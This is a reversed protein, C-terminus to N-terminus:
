RSVEKRTLGFSEWVLQDLQREFETTDNDPLLNFITKALAIMKQGLETKPSPLPFKQVYQTMFRRRGAYLKNNFSKDYFQEIFTSNGVALILWLLEINKGSADNLWYCDGNVIAGDLDIWFEPKESIDRFVIKPKQWADPDQPVWLEYWNRGAEIVYKRGELISRHKELYAKSAPYAELDVTRRNGNFCVHPYVIERKKTAKSAKFRRALHHTILPKLLEPKENEPFTDWDSRIFVKDATSKVGVAIKGVDGFFCYTNQKVQELWNDTKENSLRWVNGAELLGHQVCYIDGNISVHGESNLAKIANSYSPAKTITETEVNASYITSFKAIQGYPRKEKKRLLLVAPLVAAEFLRSDGLDWVQIIDFNEKIAERVASGGKTTMFRNSVIIGAIGKPKLVLGIGKIFAHYLDVRGTLDFQSSVRQAEQAGLQQTRVYPPNAIVLDFPEEETKFLQNDFTLAFELFDENKTILSNALCYPTVRKATYAIADKNTDFALVSNATIQNAKFSKLLSLLLEGDGVAPDIIRLPKANDQNDKLWANVIVEAVFDALITPTYHVGNQKREKATFSELLSEM